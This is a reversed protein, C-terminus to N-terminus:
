GLLLVALGLRERGALDLDQLEQCEPVRVAVDRLLQEDRGVGDLRVELVDELLEARGVARRGHGIREASTQDLSAGGARTRRRQYDGSVLGKPDHWFGGLGKGM